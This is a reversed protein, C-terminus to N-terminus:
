RQSRQCKQRPLHQVEPGSAVELSRTEVVSPDEVPVFLRPEIVVAMSAVAM